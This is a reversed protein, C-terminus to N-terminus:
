LTRKAIKCKMCRACVRTVEACLELDHRLQAAQRQYNDRVDAITQLETLAKDLLIVINECLPNQCSKM